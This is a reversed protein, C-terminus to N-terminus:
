LVVQKIVRLPKKYGELYILRSSDGEIDITSINVYKWENHYMIMTGVFLMM